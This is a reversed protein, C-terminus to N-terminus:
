CCCNNCCCGNNSNHNGCNCPTCCCCCCNGNTNGSGCCCCLLIIILLIWLCGSDNGFNWMNTVESITRQAIRHAPLGSHLKARFIFKESKGM